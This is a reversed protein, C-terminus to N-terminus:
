PLWVARYFITANNTAPNPLLSNFGSTTITNTSVPMWSGSTLSTRSQIEYVTGTTGMIGIGQSSDAVMVPNSVTYYGMINITYNPILALMNSPPPVWGSIPKFQVVFGNTTTAAVIWNTSFYNTFYYLNALDEGALGSLRWAAGAQVAEPPALHVDVLGPNSASIQSSAEVLDAGGGTNNTGGDGWVAANTILNVVDSDIARVVSQYTGNNITGLYVGAPYYYGNLQV